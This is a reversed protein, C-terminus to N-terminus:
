GRAREGLAQSTAPQAADRALPLRSLIGIYREAWVRRSFEREVFADAARGM